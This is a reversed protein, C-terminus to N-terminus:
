KSTKRAAKTEPEDAKTEPEDAKLSVRASAAAAPEPEPEPINEPWYDVPEDSFDLAVSGTVADTELSIAEVVVSSATEDPGIHLGGDQRLYSLPSNAGVLRFKVGEDGGEPETTASGTVQYLHSREITKLATEPTASFLDHVEVPGMGTVPREEITIVDSEDTSTFLIAPVFPNVSIIQHHHLFHNEYLGRANPQVRTEYVQDAVVLFDDTTLIAQAGPIDLKDAPVVEVRFPMNAKEENFAAALAEVDVAAQADTTIFLVLKDPTVAVPMRAANYHRNVYRLESAIARVRRTLARAQAADSDLDSVDPVNIKWFGDRDHYQRFMAVTSEFEVVEDSTAPVAMLQTIFDSIGSDVTFARRLSIEDITIKFTNKRTTQHVALMTELPERGFLDREMYDRDTSFGYAKALGLQVQEIRDGFRLFERKYKSLPNAFNVGSAMKVGINVLSNIFENRPGNFSFISDMVTEINAQTAEPVFEKYSSTADERMRNLLTANDTRRFPKVGPSTLKPM